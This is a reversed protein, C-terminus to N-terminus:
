DCNANEFLKSKLKIEILIENVKVACKSKLCVKVNKFTCILKKKYVLL